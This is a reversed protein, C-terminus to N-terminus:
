EKAKMKELAESLKQRALDALGVDLKGSHEVQQRERYKEPKLAKLRFILLTDSFERVQGCQVGQHFVPRLSGMVARRDAEAELADTYIELAQEWGNSFEPDVKKLDYALERGWGAFKIAATVNGTRRLCDLFREKKLPTRKTRKAM